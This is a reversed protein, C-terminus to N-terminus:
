KENLEDGGIHRTFFGLEEMEEGTAKTAETELTINQEKPNGETKEHGSFGDDKAFKMAGNKESSSSGGFAAIGLDLICPSEVEEESLIEQNTLTKRGEDSDKSTPMFQTLTPGLPSLPSFPLPRNLVDLIRTCDHSSTTTTSGKEQEQAVIAKKPALTKKV